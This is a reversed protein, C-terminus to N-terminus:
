SCEKGVRREESRLGRARSNKLVHLHVAKGAASAEACLDRLLQTGLGQGQYTVQLAIDVVRIQGEARHVVIRGVPRGDIQIISFAAQPFMSRYGQRQARFQMQFFASRTGPDWGTAALEAERSAAYLEFLLPEDEASEPRLAIVLPQNPPCAM